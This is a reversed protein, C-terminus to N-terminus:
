AASKLGCGRNAPVAVDMLRPDSLRLSNMLEIYAQKGAVLLRPNLRKEEVFTSVTMGNYDHAPFVM